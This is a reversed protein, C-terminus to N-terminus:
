RTISATQQENPAFRIVTLSHPRQCIAVTSAITAVIVLQQEPRPQPHLQQPIASPAHFLGAILAHGQPVSHGGLVAAMNAIVSYKPSNAKALYHGRLQKGSFVLSEEGKQRSLKM